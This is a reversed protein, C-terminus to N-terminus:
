PQPDAILARFEVTRKAQSPARAAGHAPVAQGARAPIRAVRHRGRHIAHDLHEYPAGRAIDNQAKQVWHRLVDLEGWRATFARMEARVQWRKVQQQWLFSLYERVETILVSTGALRRLKIGFAIAAVIAVAAVEPMLAMGDVGVQAADSDAAIAPRAAFLMTGVVIVVLAASRALLRVSRQVLGSEPPPARASGPQAAIGKPWLGPVVLVSAAAIMATPASYAAAAGFHWLLYGAGLLGIAAIGMMVSGNDPKGNDSESNLKAKQAVAGHGNSVTGNQTGNNNLTELLLGLELDVINVRQFARNIEPYPLDGEDRTDQDVAARATTGARNIVQFERLLLEIPVGDRILRIAEQDITEKVEKLVARVNDQEEQLTSRAKGTMQDDSDAPRQAAVLKDLAEQVRIVQPWVTNERFAERARHAPSFRDIIKDAVEHNAAFAAWANRAVWLAVLFSIAATSIPRLAPVAISLSTAPIVSLLIVLGANINAFARQAAHILEDDRIRSGARILVQATGSNGILSVLAASLLGFPNYTTPDHLAQLIASGFIAALMPITAIVGYGALRRILPSDRVISLSLLTLAVVDIANHVIDLWILVGHNHGVVVELGTTVALVATAVWVARLGQRSDGTSIEGIRHNHDDHRDLVIDRLTRLMRGSRSPELPVGHRGMHEIFRDRKGNYEQLAEVATSRLDLLTQEAGAVGHEAARQAHEIARILISLHRHWTTAFDKMRQRTLARAALSLRRDAGAGNLVLLKGIPSASESRQKKRERQLNAVEELVQQAAKRAQTRKARADEVARLVAKAAVEKTLAIDVGPPARPTATLLILKMQHRQERKLGFLDAVEDEPMGEVKVLWAAYDHMIQAIPTFTDEARRLRESARTVETTLRTVATEPAPGKNGRTFGLWVVSSMAVVAMSAVLIIMAVAAGGSSFASPHSFAKTALYAGVIKFLVGLFAMGTGGLQRTSANPIWRRGLEWRVFTLGNTGLEGIIAAFMVAAPIAISLSTALYFVAGGVLLSLAMTFMYATTYKTYFDEAHSQKGWWRSFLQWITPVLLLAAAIAPGYSTAAIWAAGNHLPELVPVRIADFPTIVIQGFGLLMGTVLFIPITLAALPGALPSRTLPRKRDPVEPAMIMLLNAAAVTALAALVYAGLHVGLASAVNLLISMGLVIVFDFFPMITTVGVKEDTYDQLAYYSSGSLGAFFAATELGIASPAYGYYAFSAALGLVTVVAIGRRSGYSWGIQPVFGIAAGVLAVTLLTGPDIHFPANPGPLLVAPGYIGMMMVSTSLGLAIIRGAGLPGARWRTNRISPAFKLPAIYQRLQNLVRALAAVFAHWGHSPQRVWQEEAHHLSEEAFAILATKWAAREEGTEGPFEKLESSGIIKKYKRYVKITKRLSEVSTRADQKLDQDFRVTVPSDMIQATGREVAREVLHGLLHRHIPNAFGYREALYYEVVTSSVMEATAESYSELWGRRPLVTSDFPRVGLQPDGLHFVVFPPRRESNSDHGFEPLVSSTLDGRMLGASATILQHILKAIPDSKDGREIRTLKDLIDKRADRLKNGLLEPSRKAARAEPRLVRRFAKAARRVDSDTLAQTDLAALGSVEAVPNASFDLVFREGTNDLLRAFRPHVSYRGEDDKALFKHKTLDELLVPWEGTRFVAMTPPTSIGYRHHIETMLELASDQLQQATFGARGEGRRAAREIMAIVLGFVASRTLRPNEVASWPVVERVAPPLPTTYTRDAHRLGQVFRYARTMYVATIAALAWVLRELWRMWGTSPQHAGNAPTHPAQLAPKAASEHGGQQDPAPRPQAPQRVNELPPAPARSTEVPHGLPLLNPDGGAARIANVVRSYQEPEGFRERLISWYSDHEDLSTNEQAYVVAGKGQPLRVARDRRGSYPTTEPHYIPNVARLEGISSEWCHRCYACQIPPGAGTDSAPSGATTRGKEVQADSM